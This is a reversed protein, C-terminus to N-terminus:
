HIVVTIPVTDTRQPSATDRVVIFIFYTGPTAPSNYYTIGDGSWSTLLTCNEVAQGTPSCRLSAPATGNGAFEAYDVTVAPNACAVSCVVSANVWYATPKSAFFLSGNKPVVLAKTFYPALGPNAAALGAIRQDLHM